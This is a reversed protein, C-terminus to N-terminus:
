EEKEDFIVCLSCEKSEQREREREMIKLFTGLCYVYVYIDICVNIHPSLFRMSYVLVYVSDTIFNDILNDWEKELAWAPWSFFWKLFFFNQVPSKSPHSMFRDMFDRINGSLHLVASKRWLRMSRFFGAYRRGSKPERPASRSCLLFFCVSSFFRDRLIKGIKSKGESLELDLEALKERVDEPLKSVDYNLVESTSMM